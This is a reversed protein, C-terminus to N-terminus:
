AGARLRKAPKPDPPPAPPAAVRAPVDVVGIKNAIWLTRRQYEVLGMDRWPFAEGEAFNRGGYEFPTVVVFHEADRTYRGISM